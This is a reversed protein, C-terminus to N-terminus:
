GKFAPEVLGRVDTKLRFLDGALPQDNRKRADFGYWATTVYLEDLDDGGFAFSIVHEVPFGVQREIAGDPTYRTLRWGAWHGSWV